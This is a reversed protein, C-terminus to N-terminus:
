LTWPQWLLTIGYVLGTMWIWVAVLCFLVFDVGGHFLDNAHKPKMSSRKRSFSSMSVFLSTIEIVGGGGGGGFKNYPWPRLFSPPPPPPHPNCKLFSTIKWITWTQPHDVHCWPLQTPRSPGAHNGSGGRFREQRFQSQLHAKEARRQRHHVQHPGSSWGSVAFRGRGRWSLPLLLPLIIVATRASALGEFVGVGDHFCFEAALHQVGFPQANQLLVRDEWGCCQRNRPSHMAPDHQLRSSLRWRRTRHGCWQAVAAPHPGALCLHARVGQMPTDGTDARSPWAWHPHGEWGGRPRALAGSDAAPHSPQCFGPCHRGFQLHSTGARLNQSEEWFPPTSCPHQRPSLCLHHVYNM